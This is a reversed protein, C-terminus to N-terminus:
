KYFPAYFEDLEQQALTHVAILERDSLSILNEYTSGVSASVVGASYDPTSHRMLTEYVRCGEKDVGNEALQEMQVNMLADSVDAIGNLWIGVQSLRKVNTKPVVYVAGDYSNNVYDTQSPGIPMPVFGMEFDATEAVVQSMYAYTAFMVAEGQAFLEVASKIDGRYRWSSDTKYLDKCWQIASVGVHNLFSEEVRHNKMLALGGTNAAVAMGTLNNNSTVGYIDTKGDEDTDVTCQKALARFADFTWEKKAYLDQIDVDPAYRKLLDKNYLIGTVVASNALLSVGYCKEGFTMGGTGGNDFRYRRLTKSEAVNAAAKKRAIERASYLSVEMLDTEARGAMVGKVFTDVATYPDIGEIHTKIGYSIDATALGTKWAKAYPTNATYIDPWVTQLKIEMPAISSPKGVAYKLMELADQASVIADRTVDALMQEHLTFPYKFVAMKLAELADKANITGDDNVDGFSVLDTPTEFPKEVQVPPLDTPTSVEGAHANSFGWCVAWLSLAIVLIFSTYKKMALVEKM